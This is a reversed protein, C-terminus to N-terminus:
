FKLNPSTWLFRFSHQKFKFLICSSQLEKSSTQMPCHLGCGKALMFLQNTIGDSVNWVVMSLKTGHCFTQLADAMTFLFPGSVLNWRFCDIAHWTHPLPHTVMYYDSYRALFHRGNDTQFRNQLHPNKKKKKKKKRNPCPINM